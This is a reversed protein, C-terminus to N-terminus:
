VTGTGNSYIGYEPRWQLAGCIIRGRFSASDTRFSGEFVSVEAGATGGGFYNGTANETRLEPGTHGKLRGLELFRNNKKLSGPTPVLYWEDGVIYDSEVVNTITGLPNFGEVSLHRTTGGAAVDLGTLALTKLYWNATEGAGTAVVLTLTSIGLSKNNIKRAKLQSIALFLSARSIKANAIVVEGDLTTGAALQQATGLFTRLGNFADWEERELLFETILGPLAPVIELPDSVIREFGLSFAGGAKAIGGGSALEGKFTFEPYQTGEPVRPAVWDPKGPETTPRAFGSITSDISYVKAGDFTNVERVPIVKDWVRERENFEKDVELANLHEYAFIFDDGTTLAEGYRVGLHSKFDAVAYPNGDHIGEVIRDAEMLKAPSINPPLDVRGDNTFHALDAADLKM